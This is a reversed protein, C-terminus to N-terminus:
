DPLDFSVVGNEPLGGGVAAGWPEAAGSRSSVPRGDSGPATIEVQYLGSNAGPYRSGAITPKAVGDADTIAEAAAMGGGMCQEPVFRVTVGALPRGRRRVSVEFGTIAVRSRRIEELWAVLESRSVAEDGDGDIVGMGTAIGPVVVTERGVLRGDRDGDAAAFVATAVAAPDVAPAAVRAPRGPGCGALVVLTSLALIRVGAPSGAHVLTTTM